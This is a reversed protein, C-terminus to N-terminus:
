PQTARETVEAVSLVEIRGEDRLRVAEDLVTRVVALLGEPDAALNIPHMWLHFIRRDRAAARLGKLAREQRSRIPIMRRIGYIPLISASGPVCCLGYPGPSPLVTPPEAARAVAVLHAVRGIPRPVGPRTSWAPDPARWTRFGHRAVLDLHGVANRPFVMTRLDVGIARAEKVCRALETDATQRSCGPDGLIAHSFGHCGLEQGADRLRLVLSRGYFEPHDRETGAPVGEWWPAKRWPHCPPVVDPHMVGGVPEAGELFLHGVTAWTARIRREVLMDLLPGFVHDRTLRADHLLPGLHEALDRAGWVLEFDLSLTFVGRDLSLGM